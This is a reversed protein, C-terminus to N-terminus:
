NEKHPSTNSAEDASCLLDTRKPELWILVVSINDDSGRALAQGILNRAARDLSAPTFPQASL